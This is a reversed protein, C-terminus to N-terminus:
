ILTFDEGRDRSFRVTARPHYTIWRGALVTRESGRRHGATAHLGSM